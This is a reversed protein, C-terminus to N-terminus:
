GETAATDRARAARLELADLLLELVVEFHDREDVDPLFPSVAALNPHERASATLYSRRWASRDEEQQERDLSHFGAEYSSLAFATETLARYYTAADREAFGAQRLAGVVADSGRLEAPGRTVRTSVLAAVRPHALSAWRIRRALDALTERWADAATFDRLAEDLLREALGLLIADKGDFHRLVATHNSGLEKGLRRLTLADPGDNEIVTRAADLIGDPTLGASPPRGRRAAPRGTAPAGHAPEADPGTGSVEGASM